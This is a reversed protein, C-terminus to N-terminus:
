IRRYVSNDEVAKTPSPYAKGTQALAKNVDGPTAQPIGTGIPAGTNTVTQATTRGLEGLVSFPNAKANLYSMMGETNFSSVRDNEKGGGFHFIGRDYREMFDNVIPYKQRLRDIDNDNFYQEIEFDTPDTALFKEYDSVFNLFEEDALLAQADKDGVASLISKASSGKRSSGGTTMAGYKDQVDALFSAEDFSAAGENGKFAGKSESPDVLYDEVKAM